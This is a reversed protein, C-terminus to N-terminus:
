ASLYAMWTEKEWGHVATTRGGRSVKRNLPHSADRMLCQVPVTICTSASFMRRPQQGGAGGGVTISFFADKQWGSPRVAAASPVGFVMKRPCGRTGDTMSNAMSPTDTRGCFEHSADM